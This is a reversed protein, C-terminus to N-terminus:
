GEHESASIAQFTRFTTSTPCKCIGATSHDATSFILVEKSKLHTSIKVPAGRPRCPHSLHDRSFHGKHVVLELLPLAWHLANRCPGVRGTPGWEGHLQPSLFLATTSDSVCLAGLAGPAPHHLRAGVRGGHM